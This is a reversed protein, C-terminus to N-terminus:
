GLTLIKIAWGWFNSFILNKTLQPMKWPSKKIKEAFVGWFRENRVFKKKEEEVQLNGELPRVGLHVVVFDLWSDYSHVRWQCDWHDLHLSQAMMNLAFAMRYHKCVSHFNLHTYLTPSFSCLGTLFCIKPCFNSAFFFNGWLWKFNIKRRKSCTKFFFFFNKQFFFTLPSAFIFIKQSLFFYKELFHEFLRFFLKSASQLNKKKSKKRMMEWLWFTIKGSQFNKRFPPASFISFKDFFVKGQM